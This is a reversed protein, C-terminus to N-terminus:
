MNENYDPIFPHTEYYQKIQLVLMDRCIGEQFTSETASSDFESYKKYPIIVEVNPFSTQTLADYLLSCVPRYSASFTPLLVFLPTQPLFLRITQIISAFVTSYFSKLESINLFRQTHLLKPIYKKVDHYGICFYVPDTETKFLELEAKLKKLKSLFTKIAFKNGQSLNRLKWISLNPIVMTITHLVTGTEFIFTQSPRTSTSKVFQRSKEDQSATGKPDTTDTNLKLILNGYVFLSCDGFLYISKNRDEFYYAEYVILNQISFMSKLFEMGEDSLMKTVQVNSGYRSLITFCEEVKRIHFLYFMIFILFFFRDYYRFNDTIETYPSDLNVQPPGDIGNSFVPPLQLIERLKTFNYGYRRETQMDLANLTSIAIQNIEDYYDLYYYLYMLLGATELNKKDMHYLSTAIKLAGVVQDKKMLTWIIERTVVPSLTPKSTFFTILIDATEQTNTFLGFNAHFFRPYKIFYQVAEQYYSYTLLTKIVEHTYIRMSRPENVFPSIEALSKIEYSLETPSIYTLYDRDILKSQIRKKTPASSLILRNYAVNQIPEKGKFIEFVERAKETNNQSEYVYGLIENFFSDHEALPTLVEIYKSLGTWNQLYYFMRAIRSHGIPGSLSYFFFASMYQQKSQFDDGLELFSAIIEKNEIEAKQEQSPLNKPRIIYETSDPMALEMNNLQCEQNFGDIAFFDVDFYNIAPLSFSKSFELLFSKLLQIITPPKIYTPKISLSYNNTENQFYVFYQPSEGM